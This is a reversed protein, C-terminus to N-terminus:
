GEAWRKPMTRLANVGLADCWADFAGRPVGRFALDDLSQAIPVDDVLTALKRYLLAEERREALTTALGLAGRPRVKWQHAHVPINEIHEYAGILMSASKEGFGPLGPFGDASDGTLALYDAMSEPAFGRLARFAPEDVLKRQRRDIQVVRDAVICQGL